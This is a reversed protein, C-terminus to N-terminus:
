DLVAKAIGLDSKGLAKIINVILEGEEEPVELFDLRVTSSDPVSAKIRIYVDEKHYFEITAKVIEYIRKTINPDVIRRFTFEATRSVYKPAGQEELAKAVERAAEAERRIREAERAREEEIRAREEAIRQEEAVRAEEALRAREAEAREAEIRRKEEIALLAAEALREREREEQRIKAELEAKLRAEEALKAEADRRAKEMLRENERRLMEQERRLRAMEEETALRAKNEYELRLKSEIELRIREEDIVRADQEPEAEASAEIRDIEADIASAPEATVISGDEELASEDIGDLAMLEFASEEFENDSINLEFAPEDESLAEESKEYNQEGSTAMVVERALRLLEDDAANEEAEPEQIESVTERGLIASIQERLEDDEGLEAEDEIKVLDGRRVARKFLERWDTVSRKSMVADYKDSDVRMLYRYERERVKKPVDEGIEFLIDDSAPSDSVTFAGGASLRTWKIWFDRASCGKDALLLRRYTVNESTHEMYTEHAFVLRLEISSGELSEIAQSRCIERTLQRAMEDVFTQSYKGSLFAPSPAAADIVIKVFGGEFYVSRGSIKESFEAPVSEAFSFVIPEKGVYAYPNGDLFAGRTLRWKIWLTQISGDLVATLPYYWEGGSLFADSIYDEYMQIGLLSDGYRAELMPVLRARVSIVFEESITESVIKNHTLDIFM